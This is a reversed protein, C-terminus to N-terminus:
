KIQRFARHEATQPSPITMSCDPRPFMEVAFFFDSGFTKSFEEHDSFADTLGNEIVGVLNSLSKMLESLNVTVDGLRLTVHDLPATIKLGAPMVPSYKGGRDILALASKDVVM